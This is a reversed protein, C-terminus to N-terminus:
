EGQAGALLEHDAFHLSLPPDFSGQGPVSTGVITIRRQCPRTSMEVM